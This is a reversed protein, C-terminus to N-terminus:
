SAQELLEKVRTAVIREQGPVMMWTTIQIDEDHPWINISPHGVRLRERIEAYTAKVKEQEWTVRLTPVENAIEPLYVETTVGEVTDIAARIHDIQEEWMKWDKQHDRALYIELAVLMGLIEEKNVKMARGVNTRPPTHLKAAEIYKKKGILLGASQPGRLGKGGSFTVMDFGMRTYKFLNDVPPIDSACDNLTPIKYKKGLEVWELDNIEGKNNFKNLFWMMSTKENVAKKLDKKSKVLVLKAGVNTVARVYGGMHSEQLIVENKLGTTDPLQDVIKTDMGSIAGAAAITMAGFCGSSVVAAECDLLQAIREGVRDQVTDLDVYQRGAVKISELVEEPMLCGTMSTFPGACNIFTQLGLEKFLDRGQAGIATTTSNALLGTTTLGSLFPVSSLGKILKRRTIM